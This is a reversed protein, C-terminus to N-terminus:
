NLILKKNAKLENYYSNINTSVFTVKNTGLNNIYEQKSKDLWSFSRNASVTTGDNITLAYNNFMDNIEDISYKGSSALLEFFHQQIVSYDAMLPQNFELKIEEDYGVHSNIDAEFVTILYFIDQLPINKNAVATALNTYFYRSLTECIAVKSEKKVSAVEATTPYSGYKQKYAEKFDDNEYQIFQIIYMMNILEKQDLDTKCDFMKFFSDFDGYLCLNETDNVQNDQDLITALSLSELYSIMNPYVLNKDGTQNMMCKEASAEYFWQWWLTNTSITPNKYCIGIKKEGTASKAFDTMQELHKAEHIITDELYDDRNTMLKLVTLMQPTLMLCLDDTIYANSASPAAFIKLQSLNNYIRPINLGKKTNADANITEVIILCTNYIGKDDITNYFADMGLGISELFEKNNALVLNYLEDTTLQKTVDLKVDNYQYNNIDSKNYLNLAEDINYLNAYPYVIEYDDLYNIFQQYDDKNISINLPSFIGTAVRRSANDNMRSGNTKIDDVSIVDNLGGSTNTDYKNAYDYVYEETTSITASNNNKKSTENNKDSNCGALFIILAGLGLCGVKQLGKQLSFNSKIIIRDLFRLNKVWTTDKKM